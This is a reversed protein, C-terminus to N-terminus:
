SRGLREIRDLIWQPLTLTDAIAAVEDAEKWSAELAALEGELARREIDEHAAMELALRLDAPLFAVGRTPDGMNDRGLTQAARRFTASLAGTSELVEVARDVLSRKAGTRNVQPLLRRALEIADGGRFAASPERGTTSPGLRGVALDIRVHPVELRWGEADDKDAIIRASSAQYSSFTMPGDADAFRAVVRRKLLSASWFNYLGYPLGTVGLGAAWGLGIVAAVAAGAVTSRVIHKRQRLTFRDGYRWAAFEPRLPAGIGILETGDRLRALGVHDTAVRLKTDRYLRSAAEIAEWREDLPSLNWQKCAACVVWLRGKEADFALRRGVPFADLAENAGLATHCFTCTSYM